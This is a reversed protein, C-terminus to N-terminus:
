KELSKLFETLKDRTEPKSKAERLMKEFARNRESESMGHESQAEGAEARDCKPVRRPQFVPETEFDEIVRAISAEIQARQSADVEFDEEFFIHVFLSGLTESNCSRLSNIGLSISILAFQLVGVEEKTPAKTEASYICELARKLWAYAADYNGTACLISSFTDLFRLRFRRGSKKSNWFATMLKEYIESSFQRATNFDGSSSCQLRSLLRFLHHILTEETLNTRPDRLYQDAALWATLLKSAATLAAHYKWLFGGVATMTSFNSGAFSAAGSGQAKAKKSSQDAQPVQSDFEAFAEQAVDHYQPSLPNLPANSAHRFFEEYGAQSDFIETKMRLNIFVWFWCMRTRRTPNPKGDFDKLISSNFFDLLKCSQEFTFGLSLLTVLNAPHLPDFTSSLKKFTELTRRLFQNIHYKSRRYQAIRLRFYNRLARAIHEAGLDGTEGRIFANILFIATNIYCIVMMFNPSVMTGETVEVMEIPPLESDPDDLDDLEDDQEEEETTHDSDAFKDGVGGGAQNSPDDDEETTNSDTFRVRVGGGAQKFPNMSVPSKRGMANFDSQEVHAAPKAGSDASQDGSAGLQAGSVASKDGSVASQDGSSSM